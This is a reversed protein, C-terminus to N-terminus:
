REAAFPDEPHESVNPWWFLREPKSREHAELLNVEAKSISFDFLNINEKMREPNTTKPIVVIGMDVTARLLIQVPTKNYKQALAKVNKDNLENPINKTSEFLPKGDAGIVSMRGPSGLTAYATIIISHKKCIERHAKQPLYLHLELQSVHIPVKQIKVIREIQSENFNSVGISKTLGLSYLKELGKWIDEVKVDTRHSGCERTAAPIHALYLDVYDLRLRKLSNRLAEEIVDPAVEHCFAKTTIFLDDRKVVGEAFLEALADGIQDENQYLTATDIHRYGALIANRIVTKGEDGTMQWTGLGVSPMRVGNSLTFIPVKSSM